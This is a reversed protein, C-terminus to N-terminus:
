FSRSPPPLYKDDSELWAQYLAAYQADFVATPKLDLAAWAAAHLPFLAPSHDRCRSWCSDQRYLRIRRGPQYRAAVDALARTNRRLSQAHRASTDPIETTLVVQFSGDPRREIRPRWWCESPASRQLRDTVIDELHRLHRTYRVAPHDTSLADERIGCGPEWSISWPHDHAAHKGMLEVASLSLSRTLQQACDETDVRSVVHFRDAGTRRAWLRATVIETYAPDPTWVPISSTLSQPLAIVAHALRHGPARTANFTATLHRRLRRHM